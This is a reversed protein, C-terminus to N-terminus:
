RGVAAVAAVGEQRRAPGAGRHRHHAPGRPRHARAPGRRRPVADRLRARVGPPTRSPARSSRTSARTSTACSTSCTAGPPRSTRSSPPSSRRASRSRPTSRSRWRTSRASCPSPASRRPPGSEQTARDYATPEAQEDASGDEAVAPVPVDPGYAALLEEVPVGWEAVTREELAEIRLRQEARAVEDRHVADTLREVEATLERSRARLDLLEGETVTRAAAAAEREAAATALSAELLPQAAARGRRGRRRGSGRARAPRARPGAARPRGSRGPPASSRRPRGGLGRAREEATRVALRAELEAARAVTAAAALRDRLDTSPETVTPAAQAAALRQELEALGTLDEDRAQEARVRAQELRGAEAEAARVASAALGLQEALAAMTADSAHLAALAQEVDASLREVDGRVGALEFRLREQRARAADVAATAEDVAAQVELQTPASPSGGVAWAAGLLDGDATVARLDPRAAVLAVAEDLSPVVVVDALLRALAAQLAAPGTVLDAARVAGADVPPGEPPRGDAAVVLGARGADDAKLRALATAAHAALRRRRRRGRRRPGRGGGARLGPRVTV